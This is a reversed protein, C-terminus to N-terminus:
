MYRAHGMSSLCVVIIGRIKKRRAPWKSAQEQEKICIEEIKDYM